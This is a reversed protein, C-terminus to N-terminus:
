QNIAVVEKVEPIMRKLLNEIGAKLTIVSSPCGSCSGQLVVKVEGNEYSDFNIAGGDMEIAPKVYEELIDQIKKEISDHNQITKEQLNSKQSTTETLLKGDKELYNKIFQLLTNKIEYWDIQEKKTITIFNNMYFVREIFDFNEFLIKALPANEASKLSPFDWSTGEDVLMCNAVFKLANPNPNSETYLTIM